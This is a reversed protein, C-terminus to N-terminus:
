GGLRITFPTVPVFEEDGSSGDLWKFLAFRGPWDLVTFGHHWTNMRYTIGQDSGAILARGHAVAAWPRM